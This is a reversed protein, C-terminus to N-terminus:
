KGIKIDITCLYPVLLNVLLIRKIPTLFSITIKRNKITINFIKNLFNKFKPKRKKNKIYFNNFEDRFNFYGTDPPVIKYEKEIFFEKLKSIIDVEINEKKNFISNYNEYIRDIHKKELTTKFFLAHYILIFMGNEKNPHYINNTIVKSKFIDNEWKEAFLNRNYQDIEFLIIDKNIDVKLHSNNINKLDGLIFKTEMMDKSLIDIDGVNNQFYELNINQHNRLVIYESCQNLVTFLQDFSNWGNTGVLDQKLKIDKVKTKYKNLFDDLSTGFILAINHKTENVNDTAHIKHGGGTMERLKSKTDFMNINVTRNGKSTKRSQYNPKYDKVVIVKFEGSGCHLEKHSDDPLSQGYFRTFNKSVNYPSWTISFTQIIEFKNKIITLLESEKNRAKEWFIFLQIESNM